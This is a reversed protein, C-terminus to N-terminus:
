IDSRVYCLAYPVGWQRDDKCLLHSPLSLHDLKVVTLDDYSYWVDTIPHKAWTIYHGSQWETPLSQIGYRHRLVARLSYTVTPGTWIYM